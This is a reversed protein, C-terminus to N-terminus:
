EKKESSTSCAPEDEEMKEVNKKTGKKELAKFFQEIDGTNAAAVADPSVDFQQVLPGLQGSQLANTFLSMAQHFQPSNITHKINTKISSTSKSTDDHNDPLHTSLKKVREDDSILSNILDPSSSLANTLDIMGKIVAGSKPRSGGAVRKEPTSPTAATSSRSSTGARGPTRSDM